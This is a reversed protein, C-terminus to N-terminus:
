VNIPQKALVLWILMQFQATLAMNEILFDLPMTLQGYLYIRYFDKLNRLGGKEFSPVSLQLGWFLHLNISHLLKRQM